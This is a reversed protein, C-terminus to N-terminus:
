HHGYLYRDHHVSLDGDKSEGKGIMEWLPDKDWEQVKNKALFEKLASRVLEALSTRRKKAERKLEEFLQDPFYLQTRKSM